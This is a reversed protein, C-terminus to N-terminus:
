VASVIHESLSLLEHKLIQVVTSANTKNNPAKAPCKEQMLPSLAAALPVEARAQLASLNLTNSIHDNDYAM